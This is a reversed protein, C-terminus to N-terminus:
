FLYATFGIGTLVALAFIYLVLSSKMNDSAQGKKKYLRILALVFFPITLVYLFHMPDLMRMFSFAVMLGLGSIVLM